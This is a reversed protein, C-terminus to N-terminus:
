IRNHCSNFQNWWQFGRAFSESIGFRCSPSGHMMCIVAHIKHDRSTMIPFTDSLKYQFVFTLDSLCCYSQCAWNNFKHTVLNTSIQTATIDATQANICVNSKWLQTTWHAHCKFLNILNEWKKLSVKSLSCELFDEFKRLNNLILLM